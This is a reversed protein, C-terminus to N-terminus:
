IMNNESISALFYAMTNEETYPKTPPPLAPNDPQKQPTFEVFIMLANQLLLNAM